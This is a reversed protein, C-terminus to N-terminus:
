CASTTHQKIFDRRINKLWRELIFLPNVGTKCVLLYFGIIALLLQQFNLNSIRFPKYSFFARNTEIKLQM